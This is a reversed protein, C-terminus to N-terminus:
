NKTIRLKEKFRADNLAKVFNDVAIQMDIFDEYDM